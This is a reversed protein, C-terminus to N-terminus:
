SMANITKLSTTYIRGDTREDTGGDTGALGETVTRGHVRGQERSIRSETPNYQWDWMDKM